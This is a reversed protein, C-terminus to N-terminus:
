TGSWAPCAYLRPRADMRWPSAGRTFIYVKEVTLEKRMAM